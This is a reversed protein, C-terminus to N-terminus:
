KRKRRISKKNSKRRISKKNSKRRISKKNSKRRISKKNGDSTLPPVPEYFINSLKTGLSLFKNPIDRKSLNEDYIQLNNYEDHESNNYYISKDFYKNYEPTIFNFSYNNINEQKSKIIENLFKRKLRSSIKLSKEKEMEKEIRNFETTYTKEEFSSFNYFLEKLFIEDYGINLIKIIINDIEIENSDSFKKLINEKILNNKISTIISKVFDHKFRIKISLTGAMIDFCDFTNNCLKAENLQSYADHLKLNNKLRYYYNLWSSYFKAFICYTDDKTEDKHIYLKVTFKDYINIGLDYIMAIKKSEVDAFLKLNHCDTFSVFGDAERFVSINVDNELLQNFRFSRYRAIEIDNCFYIFIESHKHCIIKKLIKWCKKLIEVKELVDTNEEKAKYLINFISKHLYFRVIYLDKLHNYINDLSKEMSQLYKLLKDISGLSYLVISIINACNEKKEMDLIHELIYKKEQENKHPLNQIHENLWNPEYTFKYMEKCKKTVRICDSNSINNNDTITYNLQCNYLKDLFNYESEETLSDFLELYTKYCEKDSSSNIKDSNDLKWEKPESETVDM